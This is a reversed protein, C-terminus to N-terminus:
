FRYRCNRMIIIARIWFETFVYIMQHGESPGYMDISPTAVFNANKVAAKRESHIRFPGARTYQCGYGVKIINGNADRRRKGM